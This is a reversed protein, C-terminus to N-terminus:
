QHYLIATLGSSLSVLLRPLPLVPIRAACRSLLQWEHVSHVQKRSPFVPSGEYSPAKGPPNRVVTVFPWFAICKLSVGRGVGAWGGDIMM